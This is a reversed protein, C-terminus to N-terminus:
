KNLTLVGAAVLLSKANARIASLMASKEQDTPPEALNMLERLFEAIKMDM